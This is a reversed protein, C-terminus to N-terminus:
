RFLIFIKIFLYSLIECISKFLFDISLISYIRIISFNIYIIIYILDFITNANFFNVWNM